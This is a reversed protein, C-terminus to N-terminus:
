INYKSLDSLEISNSYFIGDNTNFYAKLEIPYEWNIDKVNSEVYKRPYLSLCAEGDSLTKPLRDCLNRRVLKKLYTDIFSGYKVSRIGYATIIIPRVGKNVAKIAIYREKTNLMLPQYITAELHKSELNKLGKGEILNVVEEIKMRHKNGDLRTYFKYANFNSNSPNESLRIGYIGKEKPFVEICLVYKGNRLKITNFRPFSSLVPDIKSSLISNIHNKINDINKYELGVFKLPNESIGYFIVGGKDTNAFQIVDKRLEYSDKNYQYKFEVHLDEFIPNQEIELLDKETIDEIKKSNIEM